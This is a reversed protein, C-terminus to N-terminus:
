LFTLNSTTRYNHVYGTVLYLNITNLIHSLPTRVSPSVDKLLRTTFPHLACTSLKSLITIPEHLDIPYFSDLCMDLGTDAEITGTISSSDTFHRIKERILTTKNNFFNMFDNNTLAIPSAHNLLIIARQSQEEQTIICLPFGGLILTSAVNVHM